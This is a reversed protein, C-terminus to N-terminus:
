SVAPRGFLANRAACGHSNAAESVQGDTNLWWRRIAVAIVVILFLAALIITGTSAQSHSYSPFLVVVHSNTASPTSIVPATL